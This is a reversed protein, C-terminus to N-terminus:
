LKGYLISMYSRFQHRQFGAVAHASLNDASVTALAVHFHQKVGSVEVELSQSALLKLEEILPCFLKDYSPDYDKM